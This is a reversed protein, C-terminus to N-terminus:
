NILLCAWDSRCPGSGDSCQLQDLVQVPSSDGVPAVPTTSHTYCGDERHAFGGRQCVSVKLNTSFLWPSQERGDVLGPPSRSKPKKQASEQEVETETEAEWCAVRTGWTNGGM